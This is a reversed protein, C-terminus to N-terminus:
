FIGMLKMSKMENLGKSLLFKCLKTSKCKYGLLEDIIAVIKENISSSFIGVQKEQLLFKLRDCFKNPDCPHFNAKPVGLASVIVGPSNPLKTLRRDRTSRKVTAKVDCYIAKAFEYLLKEDLLSALDVNYNENNIRKM